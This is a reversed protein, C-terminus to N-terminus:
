NDAIFVHFLQSKEQRGYRTPVSPMNFALTKEGSLFDTLQKNTFSSGSALFDPKTTLFLWPNEAEPKTRANIFDTM